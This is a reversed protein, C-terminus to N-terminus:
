PQVTKQTEIWLSYRRAPKSVRSRRSHRKGTFDLECFVAVMATAAKAHASCSAHAALAPAHLTHSSNGRVPQAPPLKATKSVKPPTLQQELSGHQGINPLVQNVSRM